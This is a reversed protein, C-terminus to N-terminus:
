YGAAAFGAGVLAELDLAAGDLEAVEVPPASAFEPRADPEPLADPEAGPEAARAALDAAAARLAVYEPDFIACKGRGPNLKSLQGTTAGLSRAADAAFRRAAAGDGRADAESAAAVATSAADVPKALDRWFKDERFAAACAGLTASTAAWFEDARPAAPAASPPTRAAPRAAPAAMMLSPIRADEAPPVDVLLAAAGDGLSLRELLASCLAARAEDGAAADPAPLGCARVDAPSLSASLKRTSAVVLAEVDIGGGHTAYVSCCLKEGSVTLGRKCLRARPPPPPPPRNAPIAAAPAPPAAPASPAADDSSGARKKRRRRKGPSSSAPPSPAAAARPPSPPPSPAAPADRELPPSVPRAECRDVDLAQLCRRAQEVLNGTKDCGILDCAASILPLTKLDQPLGLESRLTSCMAPLEAAAAGM